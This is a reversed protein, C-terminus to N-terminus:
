VKVRGPRNKVIKIHTRTRENWSEHTINANQTIMVVRRRRRRSLSSRETHCLVSIPEVSTQLTNPKTAVACSEVANQTRTLLVGASDSGVARGWGTRWRKIWLVRRNRRKPDSNFWIIAGYYTGVYGRDKTRRARGRKKQGTRSGCSFLIETKPGGVM